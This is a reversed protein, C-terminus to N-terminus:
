IICCNVIGHTVNGRFKLQSGIVSKTDCPALVFLFVCATSKLIFEASIVSKRKVISSNLLVFIIVPIIQRTFFVRYCFFKSGINQCYASIVVRFIIGSTIVVFAKVKGRTYLPQLNTCAINLITDCIPIVISNRLIFILVKDAASAESQKGCGVEISAINHM